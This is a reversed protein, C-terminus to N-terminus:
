RAHSMRYSIKSAFCALPCTLAFGHQLQTRLLNRSPGLHPLSSSLSPIPRNYTSIWIEPAKTVQYHTPRSTGQIGQIGSVQNGPYRSVQIGQSGSLTHPSLNGPYGRPLCSLLRGRDPPKARGFVFHICKYIRAM